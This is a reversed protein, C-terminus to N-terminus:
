RVARYWKETMETGSHFVVHLVRRHRPELAKSSAHLLLPRMLLAEGAEALCVAEGHASVKGSVESMPLVGERHTGPSVRLPGNGADCGDLHLRVALMEELVRVPPRAYDVGDKKTGLDYGSTSVAKAFPFMIDQHWAVKWNTGATKDFAIAQVAVAEGSFIGAGVLVDKIQLAVEGVLEHDLLCREGAVGERFIQDRLEGLRVESLGSGVMAWGGDELEELMMVNTDLHRLRM